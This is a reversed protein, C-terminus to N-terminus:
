PINSLPRCRPRMMRVCCAGDILELGLGETTPLRAATQCRCLPSDASYAEADGEPGIDAEGIRHHRRTVRWTGGRKEPEVM